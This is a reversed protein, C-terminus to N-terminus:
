VHVLCRYRNKALFLFVLAFMCQVLRFLKMCLSTKSQLILIFYVAYFIALVSNAINNPSKIFKYSFSPIHDTGPSEALPRVLIVGATTERESICTVM